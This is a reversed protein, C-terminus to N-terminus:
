FEYRIGLVGETDNKFYGNFSGNVKAQVHLKETIKGDIGASAIYRDANEASYHRVKWEDSLTIGPMSNLTSIRWFGAKLTLRNYKKEAEIGTKLWVASGDHLEVKRGQGRLINMDTRIGNLSVSPTVSMGIGDFYAKWGTRIGATFVNSKVKGSLDSLENKITYDESLKRYGIMGDIFWGGLFQNGALLDAGWMNFEGRYDDARSHGRYLETGIGWWLGNMGSQRFGVNLGNQNFTFSDYGGHRYGTVAWMGNKTGSNDIIQQWRDVGDSLIFERAAFIDRAKKLLGKNDTKKFLSSGDVIIEKDKDPVPNDSILGESTHTTNVSGKDSDTYPNHEKGPSTTSTQIDSKVNNDVTNAPSHAGEPSTDGHQSTNGSDTNGNNEKGQSTQSPADTVINSDDSSDQVHHEPVTPAESQGRDTSNNGPDSNGDNDQAPSTHPPINEATNSHSDDSVQSNVPDTHPKLQWLVRGDKEQVQTDPTYVTFGSTLSAFSFYDHTTGSPASALTLDKKLVITQNFLPSLDLINDRGTAQNLINIQDSSNDTANMGMYVVLNSASMTNITLIKPVWNDTIFSLTGDQSSFNDLTSNKNIKWLGKRSLQVSTGSNGTINGSFTSDMIKLQSKNKLIVSGNFISRDADKEADSTGEELAFSIGDGDKKDVFIRSDGLTIVSNDADIVTNLTANRGLGFDTNKLSLLSFTFSRNEWDNQDFSTPQTRVSTDGTAALKDALSQNNYAHIVPHGQLTLRGNNQSFTGSIDASGDLVFAGSFGDALHNEVNLNGHLQGHFLYGRANERKAVLEQAETRDHGIYEWQENSTQNTPFYGYSNKKLIFYDTTRTYPNKYEYLSGESGKGTNSWNNIHVGDSKMSYDLVITSQNDANRNALIAGYDAANLKHFLLSNGNVDLIGGHYGWSINDPNVQKNDALVVTPRGSAINISDFAQVAGNNDMKQDLIVTGDGVKLGGPNSGTGNIVLTGEGIKHLSDGQVGNIKWTVTADKDVILGAGKWISGNPSSITYNNKFTLSGAGQDVNNQLEILGDTGSFVLNKGVNLDEGLKGHMSYTETGQILAGTGTNSDFTWSLPTHASSDYVVPADNDQTQQQTVFDTPIVLFWNTHATDGAYARLVAVLVWKKLVSDYAFLPSGSDGPTGYSALPGNVPDFTNGPNNVINSYSLGPTGVTGGTLYNYPGALQKITGDKNKIYQTGSGLRYFAIYRDTNKYADQKQGEETLEAPSVETVLKDLRPVHFDQTSDENRDVINYRNEGNGFSVNKYSGNHKVSAIYQPSILTAVGLGSDVPSFDPMAAKDLTGVLEGQKNYISINTAGPRFVGKNEAFDRFIQYDIEASVVSAESVGSVLLTSLLLANRMCTMSSIRATCKRSLESVAILSRAVASYRLSYIRNM